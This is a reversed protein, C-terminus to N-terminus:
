GWPKPRAYPSFALFEEASFVEIQMSKFQPRSFRTFNGSFGDASARVMFAKSHIGHLFRQRTEHCQQQQRPCAHKSLFGGAAAITKSM